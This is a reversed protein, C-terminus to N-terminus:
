HCCQDLMDYGALYFLSIISCPWCETRSVSEKCYLMHKISSFHFFHHLSHDMSVIERHSIKLDCRRKDSIANCTASKSSSPSPPAGELSQCSPTSKKMIFCFIISVFHSVTIQAIVHHYAFQSCCNCNLYLINIPSRCVHGVCSQM